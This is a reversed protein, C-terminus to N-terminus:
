KWTINYVCVSAGKKRCSKLDHAVRAMSDFRQALGLVIGEQFSCPYVSDAECIVQNSKGPVPKTKFHGIGESMEGTQPNFMAKGEKAHNFHYGMDLTRFATHIDRFTSEGEPPAAKKPVHLGAQRLTFEGFEQQIRDFARLFADLPYWKDPVLQAMGVGESDITGLGSELLIKSALLTFSGFGDLIVSVNSGLIQYGKYEEPSPM